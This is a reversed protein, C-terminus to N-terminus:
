TKVPLGPLIGGLGGCGVLNGVIDGLTVGNSDGTCEVGNPSTIITGIGTSSGATSTPDDQRPQTTTLKIKRIPFPLSTSPPPTQLAPLRVTIPAGMVAPLLALTALFFTPAHM